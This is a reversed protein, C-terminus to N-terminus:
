KKGGRRGSTSMRRVLGRLFPMRNSKESKRAVARISTNEADLQKQLLTMIQQMQAQRQQCQVLRPMLDMMPPPPPLAAQAAQEELLIKENDIQEQRRRETAKERREEQEKRAALM